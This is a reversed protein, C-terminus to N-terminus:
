SDVISIDPIAVGTGSLKERIRQSDYLGNSVDQLFASVYALDTFDNTYCPCNVFTFEFHASTPLNYYSVGGQVASIWPGKLKVHVDKIYGSLQLEYPNGEILRLWCPPPYAFGTDSVGTTDKAIGTAKDAVLDSMANKTRALFAPMDEGNVSQDVSSNDKASKGASADDTKSRTADQQDTGAAVTIQSDVAQLLANNQLTSTRIPLVLANLIACTRLITLPGQSCYDRDHAHMDFSIPVSLPDTSVYWHIGDPHVPTSTVKYSSSRALDIEEPMAPFFITYHDTISGNNATDRVYPGVAGYFTGSRIKSPRETPTITMPM